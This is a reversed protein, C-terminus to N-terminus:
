QYVTWVGCLEAMIIDITKMSFVESLFGFLDVQFAFVDVMFSLKDISVNLNAILFFCIFLSFNELM